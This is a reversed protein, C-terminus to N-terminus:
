LALKASAKGSIARIVPLSLFWLSLLGSLVVAALNHIFQEHAAAVADLTHVEHFAFPAPPSFWVYWLFLFEWILVGAWFTAPRVRRFRLLLVLLSCLSLAVALLPVTPYVLLRFGFGIATIINGLFVLLVVGYALQYAVLM